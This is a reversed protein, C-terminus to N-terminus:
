SYIIIWLVILLWVEARIRLLHNGSASLQQHTCDFFSKQKGNVMIVQGATELDRGYQSVLMKVSEQVGKWADEFGETALNKGNFWEQIKYLPNLHSV